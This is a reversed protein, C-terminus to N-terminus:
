TLWGNAHVTVHVRKGRMVYTWTEFEAVGRGRSCAISNLPEEYNRRDGAQKWKKEFDNNL